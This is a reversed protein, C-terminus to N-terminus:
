LNMLYLVLDEKSDLGLKKRVRGRIGQVTRHSIGLMIAIEKSTLNMRIYACYRIDKTTLNPALENLKQFFGEHVKDFHLKFNTWDENKNLQEQLNEKLSDNSRDINEIVETLLQAKEYQYLFLDALEKNKLQVESALNEIEIKNIENKKNTLEAAIKSSKLKSKSYLLLLLLIIICTIGIGLLYWTQKRSFEENKKAIVIEADKKDLEYTVKLTNVQTQAEKTYVSDRLLTAEKYYELSKAYNEKYEELDSFAEYIQAQTDLDNARKSVKLAKDLYNKAKDFEGRESYILGANITTEVFDRSDSLEENLLLISDVKAIYKLANEYADIEYYYSSMVAYSYTIFSLDESEKATKVGDLIYKEAKSFDDLAMFATSLEIYSKAEIAKRYTAHEHALLLFEIEKYNNGLGSEDAAISSYAFYLHKPRKTQKAITLLDYAIPAAKEYDSFAYYVAEMLHYLDYKINLDTIKDSDDFERKVYTFLEPSYTEIYLHDIAAVYAIRKLPQNELSKISDIIVAVDAINSQSFLLNSGIGFWVLFCVYIHKM